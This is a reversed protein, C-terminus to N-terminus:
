EFIDPDSANGCSEITQGGGIEPSDVPTLLM